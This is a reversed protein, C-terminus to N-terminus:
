VSATIWVHESANIEATKQSFRSDLVFSSNQLVRLSAPNVRASFDLINFGNHEFLHRLEDARLRNHYMYRNGAIAHWERESFQLFNVPSITPDVSSFLDALTAYHIALGGPKLIRSAERIIPALFEQSIHEIVGFSIHYDISQAPLDLESADAPALYKINTLALLEALDRRLNLLAGFRQQFQNSESRRGFMSLVEARHERFYDLDEFVLDPKLYRNLDVTTIANAGCLWLGLPLTLRRGTGVELFPGSWNCTPQHQEILTCITFAAKLHHGPFASKLNGFRRQIAYYARQSLPDPLKSIAKAIRAKNRWKM